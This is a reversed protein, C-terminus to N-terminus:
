SPARDAMLRLAEERERLTREVRRHRTHRILLAAIAAAQVVVIIILVWIVETVPPGRLRRDAGVHRENRGCGAQRDGTVGNRFATAASAIPVTEERM